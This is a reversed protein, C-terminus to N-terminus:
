PERFTQAGVGFSRPVEYYTHARPHHQAHRECWLRARRTERQIALCDECPPLIQPWHVEARPRYALVPCPAYRVLSESVSGLLLRELGKKGHTGVVILDASLNAALQAIEEDPRGVRIHMLIRDVAGVIPRSASELKARVEDMKLTYGVAREAPPDDIGGVPPAPLVHVMHLERGSGRPALRAAVSLTGESLADFDIGVVIVGSETKANMADEGHVPYHLRCASENRPPANPQHVEWGASADVAARM